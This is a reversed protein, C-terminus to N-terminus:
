DIVLKNEALSQFIHHVPLAGSIRNGALSGVSLLPQFFIEQKLRVHNETIHDHGHKPTHIKDPFDPFSRLNGHHHQTIKILKVLHPLSELVTSGVIKQFAPDGPVYKQVAQVPNGISIRGPLVPM